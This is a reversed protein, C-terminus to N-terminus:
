IENKLRVNRTRPDIKYYLEDILQNLLLYVGSIWLVLGQILPYDRANVAEVMLSGLGPYSFIIEVVAAGGLLSGISIGLVALLPLISNPLIYKFLIRNKKVGRSIAGLVYDQKLEELISIRVQRSYKAAMPVSLTIAPLIIRSFSMKTHIVPLVDLWITFLYLLFVGLCFSPISIGMFSSFRIIYDIIKNNHTASYIGMPIAIILMIIMSAATLYITAGIRDIILNVVPENKLYSTGLDGQLVNTIWNIYQIYIPKDIGMNKEALLLQEQTPVIGQAEFMALAPNSGALYTLTFTVISVGLLLMVIYLIKNFRKKIEM